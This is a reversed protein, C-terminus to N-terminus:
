PKRPPTGDNVAASLATALETANTTHSSFAINRGSHLRIVCRFDIGLYHGARNQETGQIRVTSIDDWPIPEGGGATCVLIGREHLHIAHGRTHLARILLVVGFPLALVGLGVIGGLVMDLAAGPREGPGLPRNLDAILLPVGVALLVVGAGTLVLGHNGRRKNDVPYQGILAGLDM